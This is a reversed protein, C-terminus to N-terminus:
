VQKKTEELEKEQKGISGDRENVKLLSFVKKRNM